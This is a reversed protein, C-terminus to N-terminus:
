TGKSAVVILRESRAQAFHAPEDAESPSLPLPRPPLRLPAWLRVLDRATLANDEPSM